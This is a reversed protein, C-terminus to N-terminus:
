LAPTCSPHPVDETFGAGAKTADSIVTVPATPSVTLPLASTAAIASSVVKVFAKQSPTNACQSYTIVATDLTVPVLHVTVDTVAVELALFNHLNRCTAFAVGNRRM